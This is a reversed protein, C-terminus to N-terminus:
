CRVADRVHSTSNVELTTKARYAYRSSVHAICYEERQRVVNITRDRLCM